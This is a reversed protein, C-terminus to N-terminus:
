VCRSTYLLCISNVANGEEIEKYFKKAAEVDNPHIGGDAILTEPVNEIIRGYGHVKQSEETQIIKKKRIDYEWINLRINKRAIKFLQETRMLKEELERRKTIDMIMGLMIPTGDSDILIGANVHVWALRGDRRCIRYELIM